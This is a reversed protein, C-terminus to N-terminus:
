YLSLVKSQVLSKAGDLSQDESPLTTRLPTSVELKEVLFILVWDTLEAEDWGRVEM